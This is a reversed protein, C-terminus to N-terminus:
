FPRTPLDLDPRKSMYESTVDIVGSVRRDFERPSMAHPSLTPDCIMHHEGLRVEVWTHASEHGQRRRVIGVAIRAEVGSACLLERLLMAQCRCDGFGLRLVDVPKLWATSRAYSITRFVFECLVRVKCEDTSSGDALARARDLLDDRVVLRRILLLMWAYLDFGRACASNVARGLSRGIIGRSRAATARENLREISRLMASRDALRPKPEEAGVQTSPM